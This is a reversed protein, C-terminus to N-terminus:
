CTVLFPLAMQASVTVAGYPCDLQCFFCCDCDGPYAIFPFGGEDLRIADTHCSEMVPCGVGARLSCSECKERTIAKITM